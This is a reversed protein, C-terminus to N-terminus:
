YTGYQLASTTALKQLLKPIYKQAAFGLGTGASAALVPHNAIFKNVANMDIGSEEKKRLYASYLYILPLLAVWAPAPPASAFKSLGPTRLLELIDPLKNLIDNRYDMYMSGLLRQNTGGMMPLEEDLTCSPYQAIICIREPLFSSGFSRARLVGQPISFAPFGALNLMPNGLPIGTPSFVEGSNLLNRALIPDKKSLAIFQFERPKLVIGNGALGGLAVPLPLSVARDLIGQPLDLERNFLGGMHNALDPVEKIISSLKAVATKLSAVKELTFSTKDANVGVFSIDFFRMKPNHVFVRRGDKLIKGKTMVMHDCYERTTKSKKNCISCVDYKVKCGMSMPPHEGADLQALIYDKGEKLAKARSIALVLEVRHMHRNYTAFIVDGISHEKNKNDHDCYVGASLFSKYGVGLEPDLLDSEDFYDANVNPGYYEGAGLASVIIYVTDPEKKLGALFIQLDPAYRHEAALKELSAEPIFVSVHPEGTEPNVGPFDFTKYM